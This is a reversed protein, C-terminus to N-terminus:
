ENRDIENSLIWVACTIILLCVGTPIAMPTGTARWSKFIAMDSIYAFASFVVCLTVAVCAAKVVLHIM